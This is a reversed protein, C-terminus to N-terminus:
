TDRKQHVSDRDSLFLVNKKIIANQPIVHGDKPFLSVVFNMYNDDDDIWSSVVLELTGGESIRKTM